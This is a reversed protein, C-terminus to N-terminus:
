KTGNNNDEREEEKDDKKNEAKLDRIKKYIAIGANVALIVVNLITVILSPLSLNGTQELIAATDTASITTGVAASATAIVENANM